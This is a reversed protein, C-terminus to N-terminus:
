LKRQICMPNPCVLVEMLHAMVDLIMCPSKKDSGVPVSRDRNNEKEKEKEEALLRNEKEFGSKGYEPRLGEVWVNESLEHHWSDLNPRFCFYLSLSLSLSSLFYLFVSLNVLLSWMHLIKKFGFSELMGVLYSTPYRVSTVMTVRAAGKVEQSGTRCM